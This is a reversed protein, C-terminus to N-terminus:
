PGASSRGVDPFVALAVALDASAEVAVEVGVAGPGPARGSADLAVLARPPGTITLQLGDHVPFVSAMVVDGTGAAEIVTRITGSVALAVAEDETDRDGLRLTCSVSRDRALRLLPVLHHGLHVLEPSIPLLQRLHREEEDCARRTAADVPNSWGDAIARLLAVAPELGADVWRLYSLQAAREAAEAIQAQAARGRVDATRRALAEAVRQARAWFAAFVIGVAGAVAVNGSATPSHPLVLAAIAAAVGTWALALAVLVRTSPRTSLLLIAPGTAALAQWDIVHDTGFGSAAASLAFVACTAVILGTRGLWTPSRRAWTRAGLWALAMIAIMPLLVDLRRTGGNVTLVVGVATVGLGWLLGARHNLNTLLIEVDLPFSPRGTSAAEGAGSADDTGGADPEPRLAVGLEVSTGAGPATRIRATFGGARARTAISRDIGRGEPVDGDFGVGEDRVEITLRGADVATSVVVSAAGSHKTANRRAEHVAGVIGAVTRRDLRRTLADLSADDLGRREVPLGSAALADRLTRDEGALDRRERVLSDLLVVDHACQERVQDVDATAAGGRAIAGLTNIATDHLVAADEAIQASLRRTVAAQAMTREAAAVDADATATLALVSRLGWRLAVIIAIQTVVVTIPMAPGWEQLLLAVTAAVAVAALVVQAVARGRLELFGATLSAFNTQWCAALVLVSSPHGGAVLAWASLAAMAGAVFWVPLRHRSYGAVLAYGGLAACATALQWAGWGLSALAALVMVVQWDAVLTLAVRRVTRRLSESAWGPGDAVLSEILRPALYRPAGDPTSPSM